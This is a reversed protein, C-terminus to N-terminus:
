AVKTLFSPSVKWMTNSTKVKITKINIKVIVGKLTEHRHTFKVNDGVTFAGKAEGNQSAYHSKQVTNFMHRVTRFCTTSDMKNFLAEVQAFESKNLM